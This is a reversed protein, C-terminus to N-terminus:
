RKGGNIERVVKSCCGCKCKHIALDNEGTPDLKILFEQNIHREKHKCIDYLMGERTMIQKVAWDPKAFISKSKM